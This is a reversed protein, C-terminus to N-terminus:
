LAHAPETDAAARLGTLDFSLNRLRARADRDFAQENPRSERKGDFFKGSQGEVDPSVALHLIAEAGEEPTSEPKIHAEQVMHTNMFTAPHLCNATVGTGELEDALDFTFMVLAVKSRRYALTGDYNRTMMIDGFDIPAQGLSAVNVIRSPASSKMTPLLLHTLLFPALYNVAFRLEHGDKSTEREGDPAGFGIGANNILVDLHPHEAAVKEAFSRVEDLSSFDAQYFSASGGNGKVHEALQEGRERNRGHILLEVGLSALKKAVVRGVGDTSGTILIIKNDPNM